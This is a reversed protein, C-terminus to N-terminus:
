FSRYILLLGFVFLCVGAVQKVIHLNDISMRQKLYYAFRMKVLDFLFVMLLLFFYYLFKERPTYEFASVATYVGIWWIWVFPNLVNITVGKMFAGAITKIDLSIINQINGRVFFNFIGFVILLSGGIFGMYAKYQGNIDFIGIFSNIFPIMAVDSLIVGWVYIFGAKWGKSITLDVLAFFIPGIMLSITVGSIIGKIIPDM